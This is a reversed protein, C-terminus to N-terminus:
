LTIISKYLMVNIIFGGFTIGCAPIVSWRELRRFDYSEEGNVAREQKGSNM